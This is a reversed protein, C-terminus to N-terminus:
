DKSKSGASREAAQIVNEFLASVTLPGVGGKIPTITLDARESYVEPVVDGKTKGNESSLGADIVVANQMIMDTTILGPSGTATILIEAELVKQKLNETQADAVKPTIGTSLLLKELPAGVLKGHGVLLISKGKLEINYASLLWLIALPTAPTFAPKEGLGDVDKKPEVLNLIRDTHTTVALPLQIIIGHVSKDENLEFILREINAQDVRHVDVEVQIDTGYSQKLHVYIDIVPIDITMVISLKPLINLSQKLRRVQQAQREKIYGAIESGNLSKM